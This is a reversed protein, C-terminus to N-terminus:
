SQKFSSGHENLGSSRGSSSPNRNMNMTNTSRDDRAYFDIKEPTKHRKENSYPIADGHGMAVM